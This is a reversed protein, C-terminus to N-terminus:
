TGGFPATVNVTLTCIGPVLVSGAPITTGQLLTVTTGGAAGTAGGGTCTTALGPTGAIPLGVPLSDVFPSTLVVTSASANVFTITLRSSQNAAIGSPSFSKFVGVGGSAAVGACGTPD